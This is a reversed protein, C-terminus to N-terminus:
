GVSSLAQQTVEVAQYVPTTNLGIASAAGALVMDRLLVAKQEGTYNVWAEILREEEDSFRLKTVHSRIKTPDSYM